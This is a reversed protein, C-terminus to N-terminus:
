NIQDNGYLGKRDIWGMISKQTNEKPNFEIFLWDGKQEIIKVIDEKILYGKRQNLDPEKHLILKDDKVIGIQSWNKYETLNRQFSNVKTFNVDNYGIPQDDLKISLNATDSKERFIVEGNLNQGSGPWGAKIVATSDNVLNGWFYFLCINEYENNRENWGSYFEYTGSIQKLSDIAVSVESYRGSFNKFNTASKINLSVEKTDKNTDNCFFLGSIVFILGVLYKM